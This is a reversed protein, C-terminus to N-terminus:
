LGFKKLEACISAPNWDAIGYRQYNKLVNPVGGTSNGMRVFIVPWGKDIALQGEHEIWPSNHVNDSVLFIAGRCEYAVSKIEKKIAEPGQRSVDNRVFVPEARCPASPGEFFSPLNKAVPDIMFEYSVFIKNGM